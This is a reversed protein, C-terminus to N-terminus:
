KKGLIREVEQELFAGGVFRKGNVFFTPTSKVELAVGEQMDKKVRSGADASNVCATLRAGNIGMSVALESYYNDVSLMKEWTDQSKFLVDHFPWFKGQDAACEAFVSARFAHEHRSLPFHKHEVSIQGPYTSLLKEVVGNAHACAPCQFDTYEVVKVPASPDGKLRGFARIDVPVPRLTRALFLKYVSFGGVVVAVLVITLVQRSVKM